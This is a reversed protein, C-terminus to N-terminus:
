YLIKNQILVHEFNFNFNFFFFQTIFSVVNHYYNKYQCNCINSLRLFNIYEIINKSPFCSIFSIKKTIQLIYIHIKWGKNVCVKKGTHVSFINMILKLSKKKEMSENSNKNRWHPNRCFCMERQFDLWLISWWLLKVMMKDENHISPVHLDRFLPLVFHRTVSIANTCTKKLTLKKTKTTANTLQVLSSKIVFVVNSIRRLQTFENIIYIITLLQFCKRVFAANKKGTSM